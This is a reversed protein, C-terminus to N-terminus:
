EIVIELVKKWRKEGLDEFVNETYPRLKEQSFKGTAVLVIPINNKKAMEGGLLSDDLIIVKDELKKHSLFKLLLEERANGDEGFIGSLKGTKPDRFFKDFGVSNLKVEARYSSNGTLLLLKINPNKSLEMLLEYAGPLIKAPIKKLIQVEAEAWAKYAKEPVLDLNIGLKKLVETIIYKEPRASNDIVNEDADVNFIEKFMIKSSLKDVERSVLMITGDIDVLVNIIIPGGM